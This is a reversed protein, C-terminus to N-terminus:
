IKKNRKRNYFSLSIRHSYRSNWVTDIVVGLTTDISAITCPSGRVYMKPGIGDFNISESREFNEFMQIQFNLFFINKLRSYKFFGFNSSIEM